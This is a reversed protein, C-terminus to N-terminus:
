AFKPPAPLAGDVKLRETRGRTIWGLIADRGGRLGIKGDGVTYEDGEDTVISLGPYDERAQIREVALDLADELADIDAEELDWLTELDAHHILVESIRTAPIAYPNMPRGAREVETVALKASKLQAAKEAFEASSERVQQKLQAGPLAALEEIEANRQDMSAYMPTETGTVAWDILRGLGRANGVLHAVVHARTWGACRSPAALEDDSLSEVTALMMGTERELRNLDAPMYAATKNM